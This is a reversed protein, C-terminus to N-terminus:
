DEAPRDIIKNSLEDKDNSQRPFEVALLDGARTIGEVLAQSPDAARFHIEMSAAIETWFDPPCKEHIGKDGFVAFCRADPAVLFIVANREATEHMKLKAFEKAAAATPDKVKGSQLVVRIEGSTRLEAATIAQEIRATDLSKSFKNLESM